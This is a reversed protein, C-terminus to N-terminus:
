GPPIEKGPRVKIPKDDGSRNINTPMNRMPQPKRDCGVLLATLVLAFAILCSRLSFM